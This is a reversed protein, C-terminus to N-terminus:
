VIDRRTYPACEGSLKAHAGHSSLPLKDLARYMGKSCKDYYMLLSSDDGHRRLLNEAVIVDTTANIANRKLKLKFLENARVRAEADTATYEADSDDDGSDDQSYYHYYGGGNNLLSQRNSRLCCFARFLLWFM